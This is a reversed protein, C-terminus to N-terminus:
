ANETEYRALFGEMVLEIGRVMEPIDVRPFELRAGNVADFENTFTMRTHWGGVGHDRMRLVMQRDESVGTYIARMFVTLGEVSDFFIYARGM